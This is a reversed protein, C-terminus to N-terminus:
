KGYTFNYTSYFTNQGAPSQPYSVTIKVQSPYGQDNYTYTFDTQSYVAWKMTNTNLSEEIIQSPNHKSFAFTFDQPYSWPYAIFRYGPMASYPSPKDDYGKYTLRDYELGGPDYSTSNPSGVANTVIKSSVINGKDDYTFFHTYTGGSYNNLKYDPAGGVGLLYTNVASTTSGSPSKNVYNFKVLTVGNGTYIDGSFNSVALTTDPAGIVTLLVGNGSVTTYRSSNGMYTLHHKDDYKFMSVSPYAGNSGQYFSVTAPYLADAGNGGGNGGGGGTDKKCAPLVLTVGLAFLITKTFFSYKM